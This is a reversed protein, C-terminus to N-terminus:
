GPDLCNTPGWAKSNSIPWCRIPPQSPNACWRFSNRDSSEITPAIPPSSAVPSLHAVYSKDIGNSGHIENAGDAKITAAPIPPLVPTRERAPIKEPRAPKASRKPANQAALPPPPPNASLASDARLDVSPSAPPQETDRQTAETTEAFLRIGRGIAALKDLATLDSADLSVSLTLNIQIM